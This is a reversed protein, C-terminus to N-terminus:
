LQGVPCFVPDECGEKTRYHIQQLNEATVQLRVCKERRPRMSPRMVAQGRLVGLCRHLEAFFASDSMLCSFYRSRQLSSLSGSVSVGALKWRLSLPTLTENSRRWSPCCCVHCIKHWIRTQNNWAPSKTVNLGKSEPSFGYICILLNSTQTMPLNLINSCNQRDKHLAYYAVVRNPYEHILRWHAQKKQRWCFLSICLTNM